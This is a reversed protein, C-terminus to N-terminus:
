NWVLKGGGKKLFTNAAGKKKGNKYIIYPSELYANDATFEGKKFVGGCYYTTTNEVIKLYKRKKGDELEEIFALHYGDKVEYDAHMQHIKYKEPTKEYDETM